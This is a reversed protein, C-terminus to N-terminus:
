VPSTNELLKNIFFCQLIVVRTIRPVARHCVREPHLGLISWPIQGSSVLFMALTCFTNRYRLIRLRQGCHSPCVSLRVSLCVSRSKAIAKANSALESHSMPRPFYLALHLYYKFSKKTRKRTNSTQERTLQLM